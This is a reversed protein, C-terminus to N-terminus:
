ISISALEYRNSKEVYLFTIKEDQGDANIYVIIEGPTYDAKLFIATGRFVTNLIMNIQKSFYLELEKTNNLDLAALKLQYVAPLQHRARLQKDNILERNFTIKIIRDDKEIINALIKEPINGTHMKIIQYAKVDNIPLIVNKILIPVRSQALCDRVEKVSRGLEIQLTTWVKISRPSFMDDEKRLVQIIDNSLLIYSYGNDFVKEKKMICIVM